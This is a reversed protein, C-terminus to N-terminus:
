KDLTCRNEGSESSLYYYCHFWGEPDKFYHSRCGNESYHVLLTEEGTNKCQSINYVTNNNCNVNENYYMPECNGTPTAHCENSEFTLSYTPMCVNIKNKSEDTDMCSTIFIFPVFIILTKLM